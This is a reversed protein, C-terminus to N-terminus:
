KQRVAYLAKFTRFYLTGDSIAVSASMPEGWKNEAVKNFERGAQVVNVTGDHAILYLKGDAIVPSARNSDVKMDDVADTGNFDSSLGLITQKLVYSVLSRDTADNIVDMLNAFQTGFHPTNLTILKHIDFRYKVDSWTSQLYLRSLIGGMSHAILDVKGASFKGNRANLFAKDINSKIIRRNSKFSNGNTSKYDVLQILQNHDQQFSPYKNNAVLFEVCERFTESNGYFGHVFVIPARYIHLPFSIGPIYNDNYTVKLTLPRYPGSADMYEPHTYPIEVNNSGFVYPTGLKGYKDSNSIPNNNEDLIRFGIGNTNSVNVKIYTAPSGDACIKIPNTNVFASNSYLSFFDHLAQIIKLSMPLPSAISLQRQQLKFTHERQLQLVGM